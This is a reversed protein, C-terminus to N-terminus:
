VFASSERRKFSTRSFVPKSTLSTGAAPLLRLEGERVAAFRRLGEEVARAFSRRFLCLENGIEDGIGVRAVYQGILRVM